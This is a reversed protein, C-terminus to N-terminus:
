QQTKRNDKMQEMLRRQMDMSREQLMDRDSMFKRAKYQGGISVLIMIAGIIGFVLWAKQAPIEHVEESAIVYFFVMIAVGAASGVYPIIGLVTTIPALASIYAVCRYATEYPEESGMIRWIVYVIAAIVFGFVALMIPLVVISAIGMAAGARIGFGLVVFLSQLLGAITGMVAMFVLPEVFGGIKPMSRFFNRPSTIVDIATQPIGAFNVGKTEM